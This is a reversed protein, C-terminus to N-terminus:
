FPSMFMCYKDKVKLMMFDNKFDHLVQYSVTISSNHNVKFELASPTQSKLFLQVMRVIEKVSSLTELAVCDRGQTKMWKIQEALREQQRTIAEDVFVDNLEEEGVNELTDTRLPLLISTPISSNLLSSSSPSSSKRKSPSFSSM